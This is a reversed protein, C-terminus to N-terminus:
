HAPSANQEAGKKASHRFRLAVPSNNGHTYKDTGCLRKRLVGTQVVTEPIGTPFNSGPTTLRAEEGAVLKHSIPHSAM